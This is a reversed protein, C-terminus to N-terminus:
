AGREPFRNTLHGRAKRWAARLPRQIALDSDRGTRLTALQEPTASKVLNGETLPQGEASSDGALVEALFFLRDGADLCDVVRCDLWALCDTLIPAGSAQTRHEIGAFKDTSRGSNLAFKWAVDLQDTRLLHLGFAGSAQVLEATFHNPALGIMALPDEVDISAQMAWTAVLGGLRSRAAATVLWVERDVRRFVRDIALADFNSNGVSHM